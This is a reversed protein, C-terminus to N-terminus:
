ATSSSPEDLPSAKLKAEADDVDIGTLEGIVTQLHLIDEGFPWNLIVAKDTSEFIPELTGPVFAYQIIMDAMREKADSIDQSALIAALTPQRLEIETGFLTIQRTEPKPANGLLKARLDDRTLPTPTEEAKNPVEKKAKAM